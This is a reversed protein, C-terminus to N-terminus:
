KKQLMQPEILPDEGQMPQLPMSGPPAMSRNSNKSKKQNEEIMKKIAEPAEKVTEVNKSEKKDVPKAIKKPDLLYEDINKKIQVIKYNDSSIVIPTEVVKYDKFEKLISIIDKAQPEDKINHIVIFDETMLYLDTSITLKQYINTNIFKTLKELLLKANMDNGCDLRYILKWSMPKELNFQLAEMAVVDNTVFMEADKGEQVDPYTLSVYNLAKKYETLGKVKGINNAKLLELKPVIEDGNFKEIAADALPFLSRYEGTKYMRYLNNYVIEPTESALKELGANMLIYAYRSKPYKKIIDVKMIAAKELNTIEYIKYLNYMAPLILREEPNKTLLSELKDTALKYESFKEKYISGLQFYAFNRDKILVNIESQKTPLQAIYSSTNYKKDDPSNTKTIDITKTVETKEIIKDTEVEDPNSTTSAISRWNEKLTREGWNKRFEVRGYAVTTPNYFYFSSQGSFSNNNTDPLPPAGFRNKATAPEQADDDLLTSKPNATKAIKNKSKEALLKQKIENAKLKAIYDEYFKIKDFDSLALVGLISDNRVAIAEYKIVDDLNERKKKIFNFERTRPKLKTMTSDYYKGATVYKANYFNISAINRYNSAELYSDSSKTRLSKNYYKTAQKPNKGADYYLGLQHNLVDLFPRNERDALLKNFKELFLITDGKEFNFQHAQRAQAHMTYVRPSKRKMDIISQYTVFASDQQNTQEFLQAKIFKFRAKEENIKTFKIAQSLRSIASDKKEIKIFAQALIANADAFTQNKFKIEQLLKSLNEIALGDNDLRMNTKEVWIKADYIKDSLPYKYLIYNFAELAPIFRQDFYRAKGLMLYAEDIQTNRESGDINMSRRQIAKTAKLEAREFDPNKTIPQDTKAVIPQQREVPLTEWYNDLYQTEVTVIGKDLAETGNFLVNYKTNLAQFNRTAFNDKKTSCALMLLLISLTFIYKKYNSKM